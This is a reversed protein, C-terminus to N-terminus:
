KKLRPNLVKGLMRGSSNFTFLTLILGLGPFAILWWAKTIYEQGSSIMSGWSPYSGGTGLGLYSLAAEALVVNSFLFVMNVLVPAIIVPLIERSLLQLKSLGVLEATSFFDKQKISLVESKVIKFLSMWGSIGLVIIVSFISSGFLALILVVLYIVPFALFIETIRNLLVDPFGGRYGAIFGLIIGIIFSLVVAGLGVTISIRTGHILRAFLDRGFEDTGLLYFKEQIVPIGTKSILSEKEIEYAENKQYYIVKDSLRFSDALIINDNFPPKIVEESEKRFFEADSLNNDIESKLEFQKVSSLPPLLKTVSLNKSFEPNENSIIPAFLFVFGLVILFGFSFNLKSTIFHFRKRYFLILPIILLFFMTSLSADVFSFSLVAFASSTDTFFLSIYSFILSLYDIILEFRIIVLLLWLFIIWHIIKLGSKM